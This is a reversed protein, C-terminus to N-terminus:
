RGKQKPKHKEFFRELWRFTVVEASRRDDCFIFPVAYDQQWAIVSRALIKRNLKATKKGQDFEPARELLEGFSCEVVVAACEVNSLNALEQEFRGRRTADTLAASGSGSFGLITGHADAMSKREVHVRGVYGEISYDGLSHPHRGLCSRLLNIGPSVVLVRNHRDADAHINQFTFPTQEATDIIITFPNLLPDTSRGVNARKAPPEIPPLTIQM